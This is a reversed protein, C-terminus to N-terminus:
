QSGASSPPSPHLAARLAPELADAIRASGKPSPHGDYQLEEPPVEVVVHDLHNAEFLDRVMWPPTHGTVVFVCPAGRAQAAASMARLVAAMAALGEDLEADSWYLHRWLRYFGFRQLLPPTEPPLSLALGGQGDPRAAPHPGGAFSRALLGPMFLGVVAAPRELRPLADALRLWSQDPRYNLSAVNVVQLGLRQGLLAPFTEPWELGHGVVTSEGAFVLSPLKPDILAGSTRRSEADTVFRVDRGSMPWRRDMSPTLTVGYRPNWGTLADMAAVLDRRLIRRARWQLLAETAPAALLLALLLRRAAAGRPLFPVAILLLAGTGALPGRILWAIRPDAVIFFQQPLFVHREIWPLDCRVALAVLSAGAIALAIQVIRRTL